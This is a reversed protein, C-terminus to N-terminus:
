AISSMQLQMDVMSFNNMFKEDQLIAAVVPTTYLFVRNTEKDYTPNVVIQLGKTPTIYRSNDVHCRIQEIQDFCEQIRLKPFGNHIVVDGNRDKVPVTLAKKTTNMAKAFDDISMDFSTKIADFASLTDGKSFDPLFDTNLIWRKLQMTVLHVAKIQIPTIGRPWKMLVMNHPKSLEFGKKKESMIGNAGLTPCDM